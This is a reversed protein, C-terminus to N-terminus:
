EEGEKLGVNKRGGGGGSGFRESVKMVKVRGGNEARKEVRVRGINENKGGRGDM